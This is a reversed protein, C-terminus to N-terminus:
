ASPRAHNGEASRIRVRSLGLGRTDFAAFRHDLVLDCADGAVGRGRAEPHVWFGAEAERRPV